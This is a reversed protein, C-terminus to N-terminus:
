AQANTKEQIVTTANPTVVPITVDQAYNSVAAKGAAHGGLTGVVGLILDVYVNPDVKGLCVLPFLSAVGLACLLLKLNGASM